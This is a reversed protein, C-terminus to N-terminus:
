SLHSNIVESAQSYRLTQLREEWDPKWSIMEGSRGVAECLWPVASPPKGTTLFAVRNIEAGDNGPAWYSDPPVNLFKPAQYRM